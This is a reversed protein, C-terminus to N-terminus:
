GPECGEVVGTTALQSTRVTVAYRTTQRDSPGVPVQLAGVQAYSESLAEVTCVATTGPPMSVQLEVEVSEADLVRYSVVDVTVPNARHQSWALFGAAAVCAAIAAWVAVLARRSLRTRGRGGDEPELEEDGPAPASPAPHRPRRGYRDAPPVSSTPDSM